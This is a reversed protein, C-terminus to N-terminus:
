VDAPAAPPAAVPRDLIFLEAILDPDAHSDSMFAVVRCGTLEEVADVLSTRMTQQLEHRVLRAAEFRGSDVLTREGTTMANALVLVVVNGRSFAQAKTPGRGACRRHVRVVANAIALHLRGGSLNCRQETGIAGMETCMYTPL